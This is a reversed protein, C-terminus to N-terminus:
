GIKLWANQQFPVPIKTDTTDEYPYRNFIIANLSENTTPWITEGRATSFYIPDRGFASFKLRGPTNSNTISAADLGVGIADQLTALAPYTTGVPFQTDYADIDAYQNIANVGTQFGTASITGVELVGNAKTLKRYNSTSNAQYYYDKNQYFNKSFGYDTTMTTSTIGTPHTYMYNNTQIGVNNNYLSTYVPTSIVETNSSSTYASLIVHSQALPLNYNTLLGNLRFCTLNSTQLAIANSSWTFYIESGAANNASWSLSLRARTTDVKFDPMYYLVSSSASGGLNGVANLAYFANTSWRWFGIYFGNSSYPSIVWVGTNVGWGDTFINTTPALVIGYTGKQFTYSTNSFNTIKCADDGSAAGDLAIYWTRQNLDDTIMALAREGGLWVLSICKIAGANGLGTAMATKFGTWTEGGDSSYFYPYEFQAANVLISPFYFAGLETRVIKDAGATNLLNPVNSPKGGAIDTLYVTQSEPKATNSFYKLTPWYQNLIPNEARDVLHGNLKHFPGWQTSQSPDQLSPSMNLIAGTPIEIHFSSYISQDIENENIKNVTFDREPLTLQLDFTWTLTGNTIASVIYRAPQNDHTGDKRVTAYDNVTIPRNGFLAQAATVTEPLNTFGQVSGLYMGSLELSDLRIEHEAIKAKEGPTLLGVAIDSAPGIVLNQTNIVATVPNYDTFQLTLANPHQTIGANTILSRNIAQALLAGDPEGTTFRAKTLALARITDVETLANVDKALLLQDAHEVLQNKFEAISTPM